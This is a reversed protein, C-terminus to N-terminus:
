RSGIKQPDFDGLLGFSYSSVYRFLQNLKPTINIMKNRLVQVNPVNLPALLKEAEKIRYAEILYRPPQENYILIWPIWEPPDNMNSKEIEARLFLFFEANIFQQIPVIKSLEGQTHRQNLLEAFVSVTNLNLRQKRYELSKLSLACCYAFSVNDPKSSSGYPNDVYLGKDLIEGITEWREERILFSCFIVFFEHGVFRFFDFDWDYYSASVKPQYYYRRVIEEFGKYVTILVNSANMLAAAETLRAFEVGIDITEDIADVIMQDSLGKDNHPSISDLREVLNNMFQQTLAVQNNQNNEIAIRVQDGISQPQIVKDAIKLTQSKFITNLAYLFTKELQKRESAKDTSEQSSNYTTVRKSRLDFPLEEPKGFATNMVMIIRDSGLAKFAYGLEILVNPNPTLRPQGSNIISIDCVFVHAQEIKAFITNAIDPSGAVGSTDRDLFPKIETSEDQYIAKIANKLSTEIFSWNTSNPLDKQWSYFVTCDAM